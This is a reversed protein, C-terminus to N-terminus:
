SQWTRTSRRLYIKRKNIRRATKRKIESADLLTKIKAKRATSPKQTKYNTMILKTKLLKEQQQRKGFFYITM